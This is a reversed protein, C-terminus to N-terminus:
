DLKTRASSYISPVARGRSPEDRRARAIRLCSGDGRGRTSVSSPLRRSHGEFSIPQAPRDVALAWASPFPAAKHEVEMSALHALEYADRAARYLPAAAAGAAVANEREDSSQSRRGAESAQIRRGQHSGGIRSGALRGRPVRRM